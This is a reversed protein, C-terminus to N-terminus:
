SLRIWNHRRKIPLPRPPFLALAHRACRRRRRIPLKSSRRQSTTTQEAGTRNRRMPTASARAAQLTAAAAQASAVAQDYQQQSIEQKDILLKYRVLDNQAKTNNADAEAIQSKAAEHQQRAAAIGAQASSDSWSGRWEGPEIHECQHHPCQTGAAAAQAEADAYEARAKAVAVEYDAPDIEVLM